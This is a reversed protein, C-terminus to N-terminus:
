RGDPIPKYACLCAAGGDEEPLLFIESFGIENRISELLSAADPDPPFPFLVQGGDYLLYKATRLSRLLERQPHVSLILTDFKNHEQGINDVFFASPFEKRVADRRGPPIGELLLSAGTRPETRRFAAILDIRKGPQVAAAVLDGPNSVPRRGNDMRQKRATADAFVRDTLAGVAEPAYNEQLFRQGGVSIKEWETENNLLEAMADAFAEPTDAIRVHLGDIMGTGETGFRTTVCPVGYAMSSAVKGKTGAGYRLPAITIRVRDLYQGLEEVFGAFRIQPCEAVCRFDEERCLEDRLAEGIVTVTGDIGRAQLLPLIETVYYKLADKNPPHASGVFAIGHRERFPTRSGFCARAQPIHWVRRMGYQQELLAKEESSIVIVADARSAITLELIETMLARLRLQQSDTLEAERRERIFHLDVTNFVYSAQPAFRRILRDLHRAIYVRSVFVMDFSAGYERFYRELRDQPLNLVEVGMRELMVAYRRRNEPMSEGYFVVHYGDRLMRKMFFVADMGGSGRDPMPVEADAYFIRKADYRTSPPAATEDGGHAAADTQGSLDQLFRATPMIRVTWGHDRCKRAFSACPDASEAAAFGGAAEFHEKRVIFADGSCCDAERFFSFAPSFPDEGRGLPVTGGDAFRFGCSIIRGTEPAIMQAGVPGADPHHYLALALEEAAGSSIEARASLFFLYEGHAQRAGLNMATWRDAGAPIRVIRARPFKRVPFRCRNPLPLVIEYPIRPAAAALATLARNLLFADEGDMVLISTLPLDEPIPPRVDDPLALKAQLKRRRRYQRFDATGAFLSDTRDYLMQLFQMKRWRAVPLLFLGGKLALLLWKGGILMLYDITRKLRVNWQSRLEAIEAAQRDCKEELLRIHRSMLDIRYQQVKEVIELESIRKQEPTPLEDPM